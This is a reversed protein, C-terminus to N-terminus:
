VTSKTSQMQVPLRLCQKHPLSSLLSAGPDRGTGSGKLGVLAARSQNVKKSLMHRLNFFLSRCNVSISLPPM